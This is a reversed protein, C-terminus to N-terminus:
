IYTVVAADVHFVILGCPNVRSCVRCQVALEDLVSSESSVFAALLM